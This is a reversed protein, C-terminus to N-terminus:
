DMRTLSPLEVQEIGWLGMSRALGHLAPIGGPSGDSMLAQVARYEAVETDVHDAVAEREGLSRGRGIVSNGRAGGSANLEMMWGALGCSGHRCVVCIMRKAMTVASQRLHSPINAGEAVREGSARAGESTESPRFSSEAAMPLCDYCGRSGCNMSQGDM